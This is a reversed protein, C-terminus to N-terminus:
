TGCRETLGRLLVDLWVTGGGVWSSVVNAVGDGHCGKLCSGVSRM